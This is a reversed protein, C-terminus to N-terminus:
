KALNSLEVPKELDRVVRWARDLKDNHGNLEYNVGLHAGGVWERKGKENRLRKKSYEFNEKIKVRMKWTKMEKSPKTSISEFCLTRGNLSKSRILLSRLM